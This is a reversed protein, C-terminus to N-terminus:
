GNQKVNNTLERLDSNEENKKSQYIRILEQM